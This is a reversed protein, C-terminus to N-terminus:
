IEGDTYNIGIKVYLEIYFLINYDYNVFTRNIFLLLIFLADSKELIRM